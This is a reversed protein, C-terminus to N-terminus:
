ETTTNGDRTNSDQELLSDLDHAIEAAVIAAEADSLPEPEYSAEQRQVRERQGKARDRDRKRRAVTQGRNFDHHPPKPKRPPKEGTEPDARRAAREVRQAIKERRRMGFHRRRGLDIFAEPYTPHKKAIAAVSLGEDLDDRILNLDRLLAFRISWEDRNLREAITSVTDGPKIRRFVGARLKRREDPSLVREEPPPLPRGTAEARRERRRQSATKQRIDATSAM